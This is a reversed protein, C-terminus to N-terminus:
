RAFLTWNGDGILRLRGVNSQGFFEAPLAPLLLRPPSRLASGHVWIAIAIAIVSYICITFVICKM